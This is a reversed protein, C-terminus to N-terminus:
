IYDGVCEFDAFMRQVRGTLYSLVDENLYSDRDVPEFFLTLVKGGESIRLEDKIFGDVSYTKAKVNKSNEVKMDVYRLLHEYGLSKVFRGVEAKTRIAREMSGERNSFVADEMYSKSEEKSFEVLEWQMPEKEDCIIHLDGSERYVNWLTIDNRVLYQKDEKLRSKYICHEYNIQDSTLNPYASTKEKKIRINWMPVMDYCVDKAYEEFDVVIRQIPMDELMKSEVLEVQFFKYLYPACVSKWEVGNNVFIRYLEEIKEIYKSCRKLRFSAGFEGDETYITGRFCRKSKELEAIKEYSTKLFIQMVPYAKGENWHQRLVAIDVMPKEIDEECMWVIDEETVDIKERNIIGTRVEYTVAKQERTALLRKELNHYANETEEYFPLLTDKVLEKLVRREGEDSIKMLQENIYKDFRFGNDFFNESM